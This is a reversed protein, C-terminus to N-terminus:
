DVAAGFVKLGNEVVQSVTLKNDIFPDIYSTLIQMLVSSVFKEKNKDDFSWSVQKTNKKLM